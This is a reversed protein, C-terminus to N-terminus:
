RRAAVHRDRGTLDAVVAVERYGAATCRRATEAARAADVELLLWGGPRLWAPAEAILRDTLEHGTSGSVLASVPDWETVEPELGELEGEAVYPPNCVLVDVLGRHASPIPDLLDGELVEVEAGCAAANARALEVADPSIDTAVVRAGAETAVACAIAGTGTCPELVLGGRPTREIALGALVETEPRPIFVGARVALDLHRFGVSGLLLQVPERAERRALLPALAAAAAAPMPEAASLRLRSRSLATVHAVLLAADVEPAPVGARALREAAATLAEGITRGAVRDAGAEQAESITRGAAPAEAEDSGTAPEEPGGGRRRV